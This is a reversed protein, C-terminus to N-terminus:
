HKSLFFNGVRFEKGLSFIDWFHLHFLSKKLALFHNWSTFGKSPAQGNREQPVTLHKGKRQMNYLASILVSINVKQGCSIKRPHTGSLLIAPDDALPEKTKNTKDLHRGLCRFLGCIVVPIALNLSKKELADPHEIWQTPRKAQRQEQTIIHLWM